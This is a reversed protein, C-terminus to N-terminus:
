EMLFKGLADLLFNSGRERSGGDDYGDLFAGQETMVLRTATGAAKLEFTALSVSIRRENLHMEYSYVIRQDPVIDHYIADFTSVVGSEWRGKVHERGGSRVDMERALLTYGGNGAFWKAKAAPDTLAKFVKASSVPYTRELCFTAHVVSRSGPASQQIRAVEHGLRDLTQSWGQPAGQIMPAALADFLTYTQTVELRTSGGPQEEFIVVTYARFLPQEQPGVAQMDIVLRSNPVIEAYKGKTWHERGEASRMCIQFSGGVRFEIQADPVSYGAPCFWRKLHDASSWAQFVLERTAPFIRSVVLPPLQAPQPIENRIAMM